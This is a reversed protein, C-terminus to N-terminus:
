LAARARTEIIKEALATRTVPKGAIPIGRFRESVVLGDGYGTLFFFPVGLATLRDAIREATEDGLSFDLLALDPTKTTLFTMAEAVGSVLICTGAGLTLLMDEMDLAILVQDEVILM